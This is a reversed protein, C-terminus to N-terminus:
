YPSYAGSSSTSSQAGGGARVVHWTFHHSGFHDHFGNGTSKGPKDEVFTYVPKGNVTVQKGGSRSVTGITGVKGSTTPKGGTVMVPIWFHTCTSVCLIKGSAELNPTYLADGRQNVLVRGVGALQKVSVTAHSSHQLDAAASTGSGAPAGAASASPSGGGSSGGCAAIVLAGACAAGLTM